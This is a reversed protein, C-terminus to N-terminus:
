KKKNKILKHLEEPFKTHKNFLSEEIQQEKRLNKSGKFNAGRIDAEDFKASKLNTNSIDTNSLDAESFDYGALYKGSLNKGSLDHSTKNKEESSSELTQENETPHTEPSHPFHQGMLNISEPEHNSSVFWRGLEIAIRINNKVDHSNGKFVHLADNGKVRLEYLKDIIGDPTQGTKKLNDLFNCFNGEPDSFNGKPEPFVGLKQGTIKGLCEGLQRM